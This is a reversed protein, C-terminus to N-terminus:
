EALEDPKQLHWVTLNFPSISPVIGPDKIEVMGWANHNLAKSKSEQRPSVPEFVEAQSEGVIIGRVGCALSLIHFHSWSHLRDIGIICKLSPLPSNYVQSQTFSQTFSRHIWPVMTPWVRAMVGNIVQGGYVETGIASGHHQKLDEPILTLESKCRITSM